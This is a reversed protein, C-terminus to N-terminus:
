KHKKRAAALDIVKVRTKTKPQAVPADQESVVGQSLSIADGYKEVFREQTAPDQTLPMGALRAAIAIRVHPPVPTEDELFAAFLDTIVAEKNEPTSIDDGFHAAVGAVDIDPLVYRDFWARLDARSPNGTDNVAAVTLILELGGVGEALLVLEPVHAQMYARPDVMLEAEEERVDALDGIAMGPDFAPKDEDFGAMMEDVFDWIVGGLVDGNNIHGEDEMYGLFGDLIAAVDPLETEDYQQWRSDPAYLMAAVGGKTWRRPMQNDVALMDQYFNRLITEVEAPTMFIGRAQMDSQAGHAFETIWTELNRRYSESMAM